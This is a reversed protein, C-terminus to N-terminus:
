GHTLQPKLGGGEWRSVADDIGAPTEGTLQTRVTEEAANEGCAPRDRVIVHVSPLFRKVRTVGRQRQM